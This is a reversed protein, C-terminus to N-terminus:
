EKQIKKLVKGKKNRIEIKMNEDLHTACAICPDYSRVTLAIEHWLKDEKIEKNKISRQAVNKMSQDIPYSNQTTPVILNADTVQAQNNWKYHHILLGRPAEVLGVGEGEELDPKNRLNDGTIERKQLLNVANEVAYVLCIYRALNYTLTTQSPEGFKSKFEQILESAKETPADEAINVRALPGVRYIGKPFGDEVTFCAKGYSYEISKEAINDLYDIGTFEDKVNNEPSVVQATGDYVELNGDDHLAIFNTELEGLDKYDNVTEEIIPQVFSNNWGLVIEKAEKAKKLLKQRKDETLGRSIGGPVLTLPHVAQEGLTSIIEHGLKRVRIAQKVLDPEREYLKSIGREEEPIDSLVFDPGALIFLHLTHDHILDGMSILQRLLNATEPPKVDLGDEIAKTPAIHHPASCVGCIRPTIQPVKHIRRGELFKEFGRFETLHSHAEKVGGEKDLDITVKLHGEIRTFPERVLRNTEETSKNDNM